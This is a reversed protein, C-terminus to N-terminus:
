RLSPLAAEIEHRRMELWQPLMLTEGLSDLPEDVAFGPSDTAIEFLTGGPERFYISRFYNRDVQDTVNLGSAILAKRMTDQAADDAARFAVHHITGAGSQGHPLASADEVDIFNGIDAAGDGAHWRTIAGEANGDGYGMITLVKATKEPQVSRLTIGGFGRIAHQEITAGNSSLGSRAILRHSMGDPDNFSLTNEGFNRAPVAHPVNLDTFRQMWWGLSGEPIVFSTDTAEGAGTVGPKANAWPFFTMISGPSGIKDGYYLHYTGPDDFNVTKKIMRLGLIDEYFQLNRRPDGSIATIHHLGSTIAM